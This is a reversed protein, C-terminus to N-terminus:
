ANPVGHREAQVRQRIQKLHDAVTEAVADLMAYHDPKAKDIDISLKVTGGNPRPDSWEIRLKKVRRM